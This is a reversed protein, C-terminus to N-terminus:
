LSPMGYEDAILCYIAFIMYTIPQYDVDSVYVNDYRSANHIYIDILDNISLTAGSIGAYKNIGENVM